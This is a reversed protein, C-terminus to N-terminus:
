IVLESKAHKLKNRIQRIRSKLYNWEFYCGIITRPQNPYSIFATRTHLLRTNAWLVTDGNELSFKLVYNPDYCIDTFKKLATYIKQVMDINDVDYFYSRMANGFQIKVVEKKDNLQITRHKAMMNYDFKVKKGDIEHIDYGEEIFEIDYKTLIDYSEPDINKLVEAVKFGDVFLSNGGEKSKNLMHLMQLQPPFSLSPFDTHFPLESESAYAMNSADNKISVEFVNGFHTRQIFGIRQGIKSVADKDNKPGNKLVAIGDICVAELFDHLIEDKEMFDFHNFKKLGNKMKEADWTETNNLYIQRRRKKVDDDILNRMKLWESSYKSEINGPWIIKLSNDNKDYWLKEPVVNVDFTKMTLNRATMSPTITYTKSDHSSDRLWVYPYMGYKPEDKFNVKILRRSSINEISKISRNFYFCNRSLM